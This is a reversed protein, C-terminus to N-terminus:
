TTGPIENAITVSLESARKAVISAIVYEFNGQRGLLDIGYSRLRDKESEVDQFQGYRYVPYANYSVHAGQFTPNKTLLGVKMAHREFEKAVAEIRNQSVDNSTIEVTFYDAGRRTPKYFRSFVTIRKWLAENSFNFFTNGPREFSGSYFLSILNRTQVQAKPEKGVLRLMDPIPITSIVRNYTRVKGEIELEFKEDTRKRIKAVDKGLHIKAGRNEVDRRILGYMFDFGKEPRVLRGGTITKKKTETFPLAALFMRRFSQRQILKLRKRAFEVDLEEDALDHLRHIYRQLGSRKYIMGGMYYKAYNAVSSKRACTLKCVLLDAISMATVSVGNDKLYRNVTFPYRDFSGAPNISVPKYAIDVMVNTLFPFADLLGHHESFLITGVDYQDGDFEFSRQLGGVHKEKEFIDIRVDTHSCLYRAASLGSPGAGLIAIDFSM